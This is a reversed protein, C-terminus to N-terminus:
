AGEAPPARRQRALRVAVSLFVLVAFAAFAGAAMYLHMRGEEKGAGHATQREYHEMRIGRLSAEFAEEFLQFLRDVIDGAPTGETQWIVDEDKLLAEMHDALGKAYADKLDDRQHGEARQRIFGALGAVNLRQGTKSHAAVFDAMAGAARDYHRQRPDAVAPSRIESAAAEAPTEAEEMLLDKKLRSGDVTPAWPVEPLPTFARFSSVGFGIIAVLLVGAMVIFGFRLVALYLDELKQLM